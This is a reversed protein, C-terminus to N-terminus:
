FRYDLKLRFTRGDQAITDQVQNPSGPDVNRTAFLNYVSASLHLGPLIGRSFLTLNSLYNAGTRGGGVTLRSSQYQEEFGGFLLSQYLPVVLNLKALHHPSNTLDADSGSDKARQYTYSVRGELGGQWKGELELEVGRADISDVNVYRTPSDKPNLPDVPESTILDKVRYYFGSLSSRYHEHFYQEYILEYTQIKEPKLDPNSFVNVRDDYYLEYANPARFANGYLLKLATGEVPQYILALRPNTTGGFSDYHDYRVGASLILSDLLQIEDQLYLAWIASNRRDDLHLNYPDVDYNQQHQQSNERFETGLSVKNRGPLTKTLQLEGGWWTGWALDRNLVVQPAAVPPLTTDFNAPESDTPYDGHYYYHDYFARATLQTRDDFDHHYKLDLFGHSDTTQFRTDNFVTAFSATPVNKTRSAYAGVLTFDQLSFKGYLKYGRDADAHEAIGGNLQRFDQFYLRRPGDSHMISGSLLASLGNGGEKGYSVRSEYSGFSGASGALETGHLDSPQRTIVNIVGFFANTGYLSSSPGRIVEIRDILDVDVPFETGIPATDFINDNIRHGDVLLLIRSNYDGPRNFGRIGIFNYNRDYTVYIGRVSRLADALTRYGYKRIEDRTVISVSAPAETVKQEYKSAGYVTAVEVSMLQEVSMEMLDSKPELGEAASEAHCLSFPFLVLLAMFAAQLRSRCIKIRQPLRGAETLPKIMVVELAEPTVHM